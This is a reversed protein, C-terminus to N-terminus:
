ENLSNQYHTCSLEISFYLENKLNFWHGLLPKNHPFDLKLILKQASQTQLQNALIESRTKISGDAQKPLFALTVINIVLLAINITIIIIFAQKKMKSKCTRMKASYPNLQQRRKKRSYLHFSWMM